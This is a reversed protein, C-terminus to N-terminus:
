SLMESTANRRIDPGHRDPRPRHKCNVGSPPQGISCLTGRRLQQHSLKGANPGFSVTAASPRTCRDLRGGILPPHLTRHLKLPLTLAFLQPLANHTTM